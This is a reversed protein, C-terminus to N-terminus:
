AEMSLFRREPSFDEELFRMVEIQVERRFVTVREGEQTADAPLQVLCAYPVFRWGFREFKPSFESLARSVFRRVHTSRGFESREEEPFDPFEERYLYEERMQLEDPERRTSTTSDYRRVPKGQLTAAMSENAGFWLIPASPLKGKRKTRGRWSRDAHAQFPMEGERYEVSISFERTRHRIDDDGLREAPRLNKEAGLATLLSRLVTSKGRGNEGVLLNFGPTFELRKQNLHRVNRLELSIIRM